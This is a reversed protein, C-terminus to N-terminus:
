FAAAHSFLAQGGDKFGQAAGSALPHSAPQSAPQISFWRRGIGQKVGGRLSKTNRIYYCLFEMCM